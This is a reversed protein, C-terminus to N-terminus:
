RMAKRGHTISILPFRRVKEKIKSTIGGLKTLSRELAEKGMIKKQRDLREGPKVLASKERENELWDILVKPSHGEEELVDQFEGSIYWITPDYARPELAAILHDCHNVLKPELSSEKKCFPCRMTRKSLVRVKGKKNAM